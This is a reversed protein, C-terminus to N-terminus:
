GGEGGGGGGGVEGGGAPSKEYYEGRQIRELSESLEEKTRMVAASNDRM